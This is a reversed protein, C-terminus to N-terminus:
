RPALIISTIKGTGLDADDIKLTTSGAAMLNLNEIGTLIDTDGAAATVTATTGASLDASFGGALYGHVLTLVDDGNLIEEIGDM